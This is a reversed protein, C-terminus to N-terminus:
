HTLNTSHPLAKSLAARAVCHGCPAKCAVYDACYCEGDALLTQLAELLDPAAAILDRHANTPVLRRKDGILLVTQGAGDTLRYEEGIQWAWDRAPTHQPKM